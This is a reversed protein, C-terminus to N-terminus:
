QLGWAKLAERNDAEIWEAVTVVTYIVHAMYRSGMNTLYDDGTSFCVGHKYDEAWEQLQEPTLIM